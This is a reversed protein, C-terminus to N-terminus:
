CVNTHKLTLFHELYGENEIDFKYDTVLRSLVSYIESLALYQGICNRVGLAFPLLAERM